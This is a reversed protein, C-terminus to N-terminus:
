LDRKQLIKYSFYIFLFTWALVILVDLPQVSFDKTINEGVEKAVTQVANLRTFPEKILNSMSELPLFRMIRNVEAAPHEYDKFNWFLFGKLFGEMILWVLLGGVAFASRKVLVGMFLGFSFFGTLKIFFALLYGM